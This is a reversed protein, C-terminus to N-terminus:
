EQGGSSLHGTACIVWSDSPVRDTLISFNVGPRLPNNIDLTLKFEMTESESGPRIKRAPWGSFVYEETTSPPPNLIRQAFKKAYWLGPLQDTWNAIAEAHGPFIRCTLWLWATLSTDNQNQYESDINSSIILDQIIGLAEERLEGSNRMHRSAAIVAPESAIVRLFHDMGSVVNLEADFEPSHIEKIAEDWNM